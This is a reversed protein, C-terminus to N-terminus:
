IDIFFFYMYLMIKLLIILLYKFGFVGWEIFFFFVREICDYMLVMILLVLWFIYIDRIYISDSIGISYVVYSVYM